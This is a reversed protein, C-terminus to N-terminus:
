ILFDYYSLSRKEITRVEDIMDIYLSLEKAVGGGWVIVKLCSLATLRSKACITPTAKPLKLCLM